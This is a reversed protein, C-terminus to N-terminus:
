PGPQLPEYPVQLVTTAGEHKSSAPDLTYIRLPRYVPDDLKREYTDVSAARAVGPGLSYHIDCGACDSLSEPRQVQLPKTSSERSQAAAKTAAPTSPDPM